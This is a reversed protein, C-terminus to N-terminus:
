LLVWNAGLSSDKQQNIGTVSNEFPSDGDEM